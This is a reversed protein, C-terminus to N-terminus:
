APLELGQGDASREALGDLVLTAAVREARLADHPWGMVQALDADAVPGARLADVLRGRGQRDSGEFTSQTGSTGASGDAPDPLPRGALFWGCSSSVPCVDCRAVRKTCVTAGLDLMAQNWAWGEGAPVAADAASQVERLSLRRGGVRALVRAANTDVVGVDGAFSSFAVVARSTYPGIGPLSQLEKLTSPLVGGFREVCAVAARHLNLARRNYGLGAWLRVVDGVPAAACAAVTPFRALFASFKPVVRAVQTQQLMLESVLVAWPDRTRRWPLDRRTSASWALLDRQFVTLPAPV